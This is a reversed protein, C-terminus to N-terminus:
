RSRSCSVVGFVHAAGNYSCGGEPAPLRSSARSAAAVTIVRHIFLNDITLLSGAVVIFGTLSM